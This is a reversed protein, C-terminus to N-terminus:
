FDTYITKSLNELNYKRVSGLNEFLVDIYKAFAKDM